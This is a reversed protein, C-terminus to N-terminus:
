CSCKRMLQTSGIVEYSYTCDNVHDCVAWQAYLTVEGDKEDTLNQVKAQDEYEKGNADLWGDFRHGPYQFGIPTLYAIEDYTLPQKPMSGSYVAGQINADYIIWYGTSDWNAFITLDGIPTGDFTYTM